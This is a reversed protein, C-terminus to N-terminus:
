TAAPVESLSWTYRTLSDRPAIGGPRVGRRVLLTTARCERALEARVDGLGRESWDEPIGAVLLDAEESAQLLGEGGAPLLVPETPVGVLQQVALSAAALLRSADRKGAEPDGLVGLLRLPRDTARALWAGLELAAWDHPGGGFPVLVAGDGDPGAQEGGLAIAADCPANAFM